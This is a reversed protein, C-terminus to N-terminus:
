YVFLFSTKSTSFFLLCALFHCHAYFLRVFAFAIIACFFVSVTFSHYSLTLAFSPSFGIYMTAFCHSLYLPSLSACLLLFHPPVLTLLFLLPHLFCIPFNQLIKLSLANSLPLLPHLAM